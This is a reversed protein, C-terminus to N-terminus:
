NHYSTKTEHVSDDIYRSNRFLCIFIEYQKRAHTSGAFFNNDINEDNLLFNRKM